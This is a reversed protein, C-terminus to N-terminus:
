VYNFEIEDANDFSEAGIVAGKPLTVSKLSKCESFAYDSIYKTDSPFTVSELSICGSFAYDSVTGSPLFIAKLSTCDSFAGADIIKLGYTFTVNELSSCSAFASDGIYEISEPLTVRELTRCEKFAGNGIMRVGHPVNLSKLSENKKFASDLIIKTDKHIEAIEINSNAKALVVFPNIENGIYFCGSYETYKTENSQPIARVGIYSISDPLSVDSVTHSFADSGIERVGEPIIVSKLSECADFAADSIRIVSEPLTVSCLKPCAYFAYNGIYTVGNPIVATRISQHESFAEDLIAKTDKHIRAEELTTDEAKKLATYPFDDNGIYICGEYSTYKLGNQSSLLSKIIDSDAYKKLDKENILNDINNVSEQMKTM